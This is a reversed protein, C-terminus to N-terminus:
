FKATGVFLTWIYVVTDRPSLRLAQEIHVETEAGRGLYLKALGISGHAQALNRDLTLARECQAIGQAARNTFIELFGLVFHAMPHNPASSLAKTVAAEAATLHQIPDDTFFNTVMLFNVWATGVLAEVNGPELALAREYFGRAQAMYELSLGRNVWAAGQFCADIADPHPSREARRAEVAILQANLTNALRSVIEDQMEFLDAVPKDFREAWM